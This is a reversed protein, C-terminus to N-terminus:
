HVRIMYDINHLVWIHDGLKCVLNHLQSILYSVNGIELTHSHM